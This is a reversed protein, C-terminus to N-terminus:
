LGFLAIFEQWGLTIGMLASVFGILTSVGSLFGFISSNAITNTKKTGILGFWSLLYIPSALLFRVGERIWIFPNRSEKTFEERSTELVGLYRLLAEGMLASYENVSLSLQSDFERRILPLLNLIVPYNKYIVNSHPMNFKNYIGLDGMESQLKHAKATLWAYTSEATGKSIIYESFKNAYENTFIIKNALERYKFRIQLFGLCAVALVGIALLLQDM